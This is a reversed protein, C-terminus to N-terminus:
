WIHFGKGMLRLIAEIFFYDGYIIPVHVKADHYAESGNGIIGDRETDYDAHQEATAKIIKKAHAEYMNKEFEGVHGAIELLGCSAILGATTDILKPEQPARFDVLPVGDPTNVMFYHATKKAADLYREDGTYRYSLAFGYIAWGHGRSWSSGSVYGQGRPFELPEGSVKDLVSIHHVSGDGRMLVDLTKNAHERAIFDYHTLNNHKSAWYLLPLNMMCDIIMWGMCEDNWANIFKGSPNYRGALIGAAHLGRRFSQENGTNRYNAVATHLWMFGVDHHLGLFEALVGDLKDELDSATKRFVDQGTVNYLQWLMGGWFGNTWWHTQLKGYNKYSGDIAMYPIEGDLRKCEAEVKRAVKALTDDLWKADVM